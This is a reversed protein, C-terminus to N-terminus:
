LASDANPWKFPTATPYPGLVNPLDTYQFDLLANMGEKRKDKKEQSKPIPIKLVAFFSEKSFSIKM